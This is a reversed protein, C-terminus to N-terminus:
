DFVRHRPTIYCQNTSTPAKHTKGYHFGWVKWNMRVNSFRCTTRVRTNKVKRKKRKTGRVPKTFQRHLLHRPGILHNWRMNIHFHFVHGIGGLVADTQWAMLLQHTSQFKKGMIRDGERQIILYNFHHHSETNEYM